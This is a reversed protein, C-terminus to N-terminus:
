RRDTPDPAHGAGAPRHVGYGAPLTPRGLRATERLSHSAPDRWPHWGTRHLTAAAVPSASNTVASRSTAQRLSAM